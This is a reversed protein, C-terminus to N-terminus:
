ARWHALYQQQDATLADIAVGAAALKLRAVHEDIAAPVPYCGPTLSHAQEVVHHAALAQLAFSMDMIEAPHGDACSINVINGGGLLNLWRGDALRFGEVNARLSKREVATDALSAVDIEQSFHGANALLVNNKLLAFHERRLTHRVGTVTLVVDAVRCAEALPLVRCGRMLADAAKIPDVECVVVQAGLGQARLACGQGCWGYGVIAVTKGALVLNTTRMVADWVSQGTGHVNDFLYKCRAENVLVVPFRLQGAKARARARLVGSTTEECAGLMEKAHSRHSEHLLEVLDGGDDIVVHPVLELALGMYRRMEDLEAGHRAYVHLGEAALAAVVDDKTSEPNSGTVAVAAGGARLVLALYATKAELHICVAIRKGAFPQETVFRQELQRLIPMNRRVWEIKRQGEAALEPHALINPQM